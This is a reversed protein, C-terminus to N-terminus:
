LDIAVLYVEFAGLRSVGSKRFPVNSAVDGEGDYMALDSSMERAGGKLAPITGCRVEIELGADALEPDPCQISLGVAQQLREFCADYHRADHSLSISRGVRPNCVSEVLLVLAPTGARPTAPSSSSPSTLAASLARAAMLTANARRTLTRLTREGLDCVIPRPVLQGPPAQPAPRTHFNRRYPHHQQQQPPPPGITIVRPAPSVPAVAAPTSGAPLAPPARHRPSQQSAVAAAAAVASDADASSEPQLAATLHQHQHQHQRFSPPVSPSEGSETATRYSTGFLAAPSTSGHTSMGPTSPDSGDSYIYTATPSPPPRQKLMEQEKIMRARAMDLHIQVFPPNFKRALELASSLDRRVGGGHILPAPRHRPSSEGERRRWGQLNM